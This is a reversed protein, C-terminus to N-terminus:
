FVRIARVGGDYTKLFPYANTPSNQGWANTATSGTSSWYYINSMQVGPSNFIINLDVKNPLYWDTFGGGNYATCLASANDWSSIGLDVGSAIIGHTEGSIYNADGSQYLYAVVGGGYQAGIVIPLITGDFFRWNTGDYFMPKLAETNFVILGQAPSVLASIQVATLTQTTFM